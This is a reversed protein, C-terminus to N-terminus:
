KSTTPPRSVPPTITPSTTSTTLPAKVVVSPTQPEIKIPTPPEIKLRKEEPVSIMPNTPSITTPQQNPNDDKAQSKRKKGSKGVEGFVSGSPTVVSEVFNSTTFKGNVPTTTDSPPPHDSSTTPPASAPMATPHEQVAAAPTLETM